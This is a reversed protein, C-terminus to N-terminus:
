RLEEGFRNLFKVELISIAQELWWFLGGFPAQVLWLIRYIVRYSLKHLGKYCLPEKKPPWRV